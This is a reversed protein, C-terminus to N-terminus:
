ELEQDRFIGASGTVNRSTDDIQGVMEFTSFTGDCDLDGLARATFESTIDTGTSLYEYQYYHPDDMSFKLASWGAVKWEAISAAPDCKDGAGGGCCGAAPVAPTTGTPDPFQKALPTVSNRQNSEELYYSRAGDYIKKIGEVAETTKSKRIYKMFAPIAVAALVGIIAVVIMLEILTFGKVVRSKMRSLM